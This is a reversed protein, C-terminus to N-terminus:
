KLVAKMITAYDECYEDACNHQKCDRFEFTWQAGPDSFAKTNASIRYLIQCFETVHVRTHPFIDRYAIWGWVFFNPTLTATQFSEATKSEKGFFSIPEEAVGFDYPSKPSIVHGSPASSPNGRFQEESPENAMKDAYFWQAMSNAPTNGTNLTQASFQFSATENPPAGRREAIRRGQVGQFSIYSRQVGQLSERNIKNSEGMRSWQLAAFVTYLTTAVFLLASFIAIIANSHEPITVFGWKRKLWGAMLVEARNHKSNANDPDKQTDNSRKQKLDYERSGAGVSHKHDSDSQENDTIERSNKPEKIEKVISGTHAHFLNERAQRRKRKQARKSKKSMTFSQFHKFSM